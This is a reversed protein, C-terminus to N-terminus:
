GVDDGMRLLRDLIDDCHDKHKAERKRENECHGLEVVPEGGAEIGLAGFPDHDAYKNETGKRRTTIRIPKAYTASAM